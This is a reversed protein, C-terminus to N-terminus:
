WPCSFGAKKQPLIVLSLFFRGEKATTDGLVLYFRGRRATEGPNSVQMSVFGTPVVGAAIQEAQSAKQEAAHLADAQGMAEAIEAEDLRVWGEWAMVAPMSPKCFVDACGVGAESAGALQQASLPAASYDTTLIRLILLERRNLAAPLSCFGCGSHVCVSHILAGPRAPRPSGDQAHGAPLAPRHDSRRWRVFRCLLCRLLVIPVMSNLM